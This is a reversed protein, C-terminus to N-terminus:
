TLDGNILISERFDVIGFVTKIKADIKLKRTTTSYETTLSEIDETEPDAKLIATVLNVYPDPSQEIEEDVLLDLWPTGWEPDLVYEGVNLRLNDRQRQAYSDVGSFIVAVGNEIVM